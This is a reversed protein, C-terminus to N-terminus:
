AKTLFSFYRGDRRSRESGEPCSEQVSSANSSTLLLLLPPRETKTSTGRRGWERHHALVPLYALSSVCVSSSSRSRRAPQRGGGGFLECVRCGIRGLLSPSPSSSSSSPPLTRSHAERTDDDDGHDVQRMSSNTTIRESERFLFEAYLVPLLCELIEVNWQAKLKAGGVLEDSDDSLLTRRDICCFRCCYGGGRRHSHLFIM